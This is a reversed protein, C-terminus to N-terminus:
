AMCANPEFPLTFNSYNFFATRSQQEACKLLTDMLGFEAKKAGAVRAKIQKDVIHGKRQLIFPILLAIGAKFNLKLIHWVLFFM